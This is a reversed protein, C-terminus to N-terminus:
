EAKLFSWLRDAYVVISEIDKWIDYTRLTLVFPMGVWHGHLAIGYEIHMLLDYMTVTWASTM